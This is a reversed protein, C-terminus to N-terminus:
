CHLTQAESVLADVGGTALVLIPHDPWQTILHFLRAVGFRSLAGRVKPCRDWQDLSLYSWM